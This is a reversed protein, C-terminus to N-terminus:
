TFSNNITDIKLKETLIMIMSLLKVSFDDDSM